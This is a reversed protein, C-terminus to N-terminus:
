RGGTWVPSNLFCGFIAMESILITYFTYGAKIRHERCYRFRLFRNRAPNAWSESCALLDPSRASNQTIQGWIPFFTDTSSISADLLGYAADECCLLLKSQPFSIIDAVLQLQHSSWAPCDWFAFDLRHHEVWCHLFTKTPDLNHSSCTLIVGDFFCTRLM